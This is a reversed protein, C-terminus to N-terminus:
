WWDVGSGGNGGTNSNYNGGYSGTGAPGSWSNFGGGDRPAGGGGGYHGGRQGGRGRSGGQDRDGGAGRGGGGEIRYDRSAFARGKGGGRRPGGSGFSRTELALSELWGPLEQFVFFGNDFNKLMDRFDGTM